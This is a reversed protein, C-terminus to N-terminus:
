KNLLRLIQLESDNSYGSEGSYKIIEKAIEELPIFEVDWEKLKAKIQNANKKKQYDRSFIYFKFGEGYREKIQEEAEKRNEFFIKFKGKHRKHKEECNEDPFHVLGLSWSKVEGIIKNPLNDKLNNKIRIAIIDIEPYKNKGAKIKENTRVFFGKSELYLKVLRETAEEM